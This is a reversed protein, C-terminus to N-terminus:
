AVIRDAVGAVVPIRPTAGQYARVILYVWAVFAGLSVALWVLGLVLSILAGLGATASSFFLAFVLTQVVTLVISAAFLVASLAISQAAHFRVFPDEKEVLFVVIGTVFGLVYSLAAMLSPSTTTTTTSGVIEQEPTDITESVM